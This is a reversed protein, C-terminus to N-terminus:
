ILYIILTFLALGWCYYAFGSFGAKVALFRVLYVALYSAAFSAAAATVCGFVLLGSFSVAGVGAAIDLILMVALAPICLMLGLDAAYRRDAGRLMAASTGFGVRSIGPIIGCGSALGILVGDLSSMSVASKNAGPLYQPIYLLIGNSGLLLALLWLRQHLQQVLGYGLFVLLMSVAATRLLRLEMLSGFDPQRRRRSRPLKAIKQERRLRTLIPVFSILLALLCGLHAAFRLWGHDAGGILVSFLSQHAVSSLPLLETFGSILGYILCEFWTYEM